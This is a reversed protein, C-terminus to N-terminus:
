PGVLLLSCLAQEGDWTCAAAAQTFTPDELNARHGASGMWAEVVDAAPAAARSLNEGATSLPACAALVPDLAAHELDAGVLAQAREAASPQACDATEWAPLGAAVHAANSEALLDAAYSELDVEGAAWTTTTTADTADTPGGTRTGLVVAAIALAAGAVLLVVAAVDSRRRRRASADPAPADLEHATM